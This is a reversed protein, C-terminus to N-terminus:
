IAEKLKAYLNFGTVSHSNFCVMYVTFVFEM